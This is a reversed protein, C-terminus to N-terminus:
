LARAGIAEANAEDWPNFPKWGLAERLEELHEEWQPIPTATEPSHGLRYFRVCFGDKGVLRGAEVSAEDRTMEKVKVQHWGLCKEEFIYIRKQQSKKGQETM